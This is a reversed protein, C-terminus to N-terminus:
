SQQAVQGLYDKTDFMWDLGSPVDSVSPPVTSVYVASTSPCTMKLAKMQNWQNLPLALLQYGARDDVVKANSDLFFREIGYIRMKAVRVTANQEALINAVTLGRAPKGDRAKQVWYRGRNRLRNRENDAERISDRYAKVDEGGKVTGDTEITASNSLVVETSGKLVADNWNGRASYWRFNSLITAGREGYVHWPKNLFCNIRGRTTVTDWGGTNVETRGDDHFMLIDTSHLQVAIGGHYRRKLYTNNALKRSEKCRGTLKAAADQYNV